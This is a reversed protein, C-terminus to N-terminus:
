RYGKERAQRDTEATLLSELPMLVQKDTKRLDITKLYRKCRVCMHLRYLEKM